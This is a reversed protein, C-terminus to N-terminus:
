TPAVKGELGREKIIELARLYFPMSITKLRELGDGHVLEYKPKYSITGFFPQNWAHFFKRVYIYGNKPSVLGIEHVRTTVVGIRPKPTKVGAYGPYSPSNPWGEPYEWAGEANVLVKSEVRFIELEEEGNNVSIPSMELTALVGHKYAAITGYETSLGVTADGRSFPTYSLYTVSQEYAGIRAMGWIKEAFRVVGDPDITYDPTGRVGDENYAFMLLFTCSRYPLEFSDAGTINAFTEKIHKSGRGVEKIEGVTSYLSPSGGPITDVMTVLLSGIPLIIDGGATLTLTGGANDGFPFLVSTSLPTAM